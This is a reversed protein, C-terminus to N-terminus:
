RAGLDVQGRDLEHYFYWRNKIRILKRTLAFKVQARYEHWTVEAWEGHFEVSKIQCKTLVPAIRGDEQLFDQVANWWRMASPDARVTPSWVKWLGREAHTRIVHYRGGNCTPCAGARKRKPDFAAGTGGCFTCKKTLVGAKCHGFYDMMFRRVAREGASREKKTGSFSPPKARKSRANRGSSGNRGPSPAPPGRRITEAATLTKKGPKRETRVTRIEAMRHALELIAENARASPRIRCAAHLDDIAREYEGYLTRLADSSVSKKAAHFSRWTEEGRHALDMGSALFQDFKELDGAMCFVSLCLVIGIRKV